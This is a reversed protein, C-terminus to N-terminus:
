NLALRHCLKYCGYHTKMRYERQCPQQPGEGHGQSGPCWLEALEGAKNLWRPEGVGSYEGDPGRQPGCDILRRPAGDQLPLSSIGLARVRIIILSIILMGTITSYKDKSILHKIIPTRQGRRVETVEPHRCEKRSHRLWGASRQCVETQLLALPLGYFGHGVPEHPQVAAKPNSALYLVKVAKSGKLFWASASSGPTFLGAVFLLQPLLFRGPSLPQSLVHETVFCLALKQVFHCGREPFPPVPEHIIRVQLVVIPDVEFGSGARAAVGGNKNSHLQSYLILM